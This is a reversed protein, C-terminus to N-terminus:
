MANPIPLVSSVVRRAWFSIGRRINSPDIELFSSCVVLTSIIKLTTLIQPPLSEWLGIYNLALIEAATILKLGQKNLSFGVERDNRDGNLSCGLGSVSCVMAVLALTQRLVPDLVPMHTDLNYPISGWGGGSFPNIINSLPNAISNNM